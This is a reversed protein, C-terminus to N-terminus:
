KYEELQMLGLHEAGYCRAMMHLKAFELHGVISSLSLESQSYVKFKDVGNEDMYTAVAVFGTPTCGSPVLSDMFAADVEDM